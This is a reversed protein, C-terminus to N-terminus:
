KSNGVALARSFSAQSYLRQGRGQLIGEEFQYQRGEILRVSPPDYLASSNLRAAESETLGKSTCSSLSPLTLALAILKCTSKM